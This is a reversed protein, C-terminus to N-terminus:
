LAWCWHFAQQTAVVANANLKGYNPPAHLSLFCCPYAPCTTTTTSTPTTLHPCNSTATISNCLLNLSKFTAFSVTAAGRHGNDTVKWGWVAACWKLHSILHIPYYTVACSHICDLQLYSVVHWTSNKLAMHVRYAKHANTLIAPHTKQHGLQNYPIVKPWTPCFPPYHQEAGQVTGQELAGCWCSAKHPALMGSTNLQTNNLTAHLSLFSWSQGPHNPSTTLTAIVLCQRSSRCLSSSCPLRLFEITALPFQQLGM